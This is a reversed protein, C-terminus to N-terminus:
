VRSAKKKELKLREKEEQIALEKEEYENWDKEMFPLLYVITLGGYFILCNPFQMLVQNGYAGLQIAIFACCM